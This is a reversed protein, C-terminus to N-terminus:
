ITSYYDPKKDLSPLVILYTDGNKEGIFCVGTQDNIVDDATLGDASLSSVAAAM